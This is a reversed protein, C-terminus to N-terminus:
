IEKGSRRSIRVKTGDDNIKYGVRTPKGDEVLAVNSAHLAAEVTVIGSERGARQADAKIHKKVFNVGEVIVRNREPFVKIIKGTKGKDKGALVIVEDGKKIKM